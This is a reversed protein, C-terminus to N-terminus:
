GNKPPQSDGTKAAANTENAKEKKRYYTERRRANHIKLCAECLATAKTIHTAKAGCYMCRGEVVHKKRSKAYRGSSVVRCKECTLFQYDAPLLKKCYTCRKETARRARIKELADNVEARNM